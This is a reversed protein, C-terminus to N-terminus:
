LQSHRFYDAVFLIAINVGFLKKVSWLLCRLLINIEFDKILYEVDYNLSRNCYYLIYSTIAVIIITTYDIFFNLFM